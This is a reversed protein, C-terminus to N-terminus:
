RPTHQYYWQIIGHLAFETLWSHKVKTSICSIFSLKLGAEQNLGGTQSPTDEAHLKYTRGKAQVPERWTTQSRM